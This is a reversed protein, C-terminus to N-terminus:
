IGEGLQIDYQCVMDQRMKKFNMPLLEWRKRCDRCVWMAGCLDTPVTEEIKVRHYGYCLYDGEKKEEPEYTNSM